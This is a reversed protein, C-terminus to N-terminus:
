DAGMNYEYGGLVLYFRTGCFNDLVQLIKRMTMQGFKILTGIPTMVSKIMKKNERARIYNFNNRARSCFVLRETLLLNM